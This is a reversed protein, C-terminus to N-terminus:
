VTRTYQQFSFFVLVIIEEKLPITERIWCITQKRLLCTAIHHKNHAFRHESCTLLGVVRVRLVCLVYTSRVLKTYTCIQPLTRKWSNWLCAHYRYPTCVGVWWKCGKQASLPRQIPSSAYAGLKWLLAMSRQRQPTQVMLTLRYRHYEHNWSVTPFEM